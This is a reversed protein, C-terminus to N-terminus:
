GFVDEILDVVVGNARDILAVDAGVRAYAFGRRTPLRALLDRPLASLPAGAPVPKGREFGKAQQPTLGTWVVPKSAFYVRVTTDDMATFRMPEGAAAQQVSLGLAVILGAFVLIAPRM